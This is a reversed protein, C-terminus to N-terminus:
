GASRDGMLAEAVPDVQSLLELIRNLDLESLEGDQRWKLCSNLPDVSRHPATQQM